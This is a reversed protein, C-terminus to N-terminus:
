FIKDANRCLAFLWLSILVCVAIIAPMTSNLAQQLFGSLAGGLFLGAFECTMVGGVAAARRDATAVKTATAPLVAEMVVFGGFFFFLSLVAGWFSSAMFAVALVGVLVLAVAVVAAGRRKDAVALLPLSLLLSVFFGALYVRGHAAAPLTKLLAAPLVFFLAALAYHLVFAGVACLRLAKNQLLGVIDPAQTNRAQPPSPLLLLLLMSVVGLWGAFTFVGPLGAAAGLPPAVALSVVFALAIAAGFVAMGRARHAASTVDAIWAAAVAAVAGVGQLLRGAIMENIHDAAGAVFGGVAFLALAALLVPKRGWRDALMGVPIQMLAQTIGYGSLVLGARWGDGGDMQKVLIVAVPLVIFVGLMRFFLAGSLAAITTLERFNM